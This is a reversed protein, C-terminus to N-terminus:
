IFIERPKAWEQPGIIGRQEMIDILRAARPFWVGLKRQLMTASAKRTESIIQIAQEILEEDDGQIMDEGAYEGKSELLRIIEPHFIDNETLGVMYKDVIARVIEETEGTSIYPAQVRIPYKTKPDMYLLDGKGVLDEAWKVDLITRSDIQSVVWFAIRTPINAKILGTIVNVSPRQTALILHIGVARAKQAIRTIYLETDKKNGSMMLDALEDIIIVLRYMKDDDKAKDNYESLNRVKLKKLKTYREEMFDVARKLLKVAKSPDTIIPALLYPIWEYIGLEVQKPDVMLFKLESPTNQYMLATIFTNVGVSKGSGTAGAVLLHPMSELDRVLHTGDISTGVPLNTFSETMGKAFNIGWLVDSLYVMQPKPNPIEIGVTDTWPIPALIRLSKTRLALAIDKDYSEIKTIKVGSDPKLKFQIVTPGINFGEVTVDIDFEALKNKIAHAKEMLIDEDISAWPNTNQDLLSLPFTPKDKPFNIHLQRITQEDEKQQIKNALKDKLISKLLSKESNQEPSIHTMTKQELDEAQSKQVPTTKNISTNEKAKKVSTKVAEYHSNLADFRLAPIKLNYYIGIAIVTILLCAFVVIKIAQVEGWLWRDLIRLYMYWIRWGNELLLTRFEISAFRDFGIDLLPFNLFGCFITILILSFKFLRRTYYKQRLVILLGILTLFGFFVMSGKEGFLQTTPYSLGTFLPSNQAMQFSFFFLAGIILLGFWLKYRSLTISTTRKTRRRAM